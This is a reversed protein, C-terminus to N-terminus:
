VPLPSASSAPLKSHRQVALLLAPAETRSHRVLAHWLLSRYWGVRPAIGHLVGAQREELADALRRRLQVGDLEFDHQGFLTPSCPRSGAVKFQQKQGRASTIAELVIGQMHEAKRRSAAMLMSFPRHAPELRLVRILDGRTTPLAQLQRAPSSEPPESYVLTAEATLVLSGISTPIGSFTSLAEAASTPRVRSPSHAVRGAITALSLGTVM